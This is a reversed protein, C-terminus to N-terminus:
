FDFKMQYGYPMALLYTKISMIINEEYIKKKLKDGVQYTVVDGECYSLNPDTNWFGEVSTLGRLPVFHQSEEVEPHKTVRAVPSELSTFYSKHQTIVQSNFKHVPM